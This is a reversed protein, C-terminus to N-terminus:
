YEALTYLASVILELLKKWVTHNWFIDMGEARPTM